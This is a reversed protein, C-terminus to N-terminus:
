ECECEIDLFECFEDLSIDKNSDRDMYQMIKGVRKEGASHGLMRLAEVCEEKSLVGNKDKDAKHFLGKLQETSLTTKEKNLYADAFEKFSLMGDGDGDAQTFATQKEKDSLKMGLVDLMKLFELSSLKGDANKDSYWFYKCLASIDSDLSQQREM